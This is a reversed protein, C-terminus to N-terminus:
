LDENNKGQQVTHSAEHALTTMDSQSSFVVENGSTFANAGMGQSATPSFAPPDLSYGFASEISDAHPQVDNSKLHETDNQKGMCLIKYYIYINIIFNELGGILLLAYQFGFIYM